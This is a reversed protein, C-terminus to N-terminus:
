YEGYAFCGDFRTFICLACHVICLSININKEYRNDAIQLRFINDADHQLHVQAERVVVAVVAVEM